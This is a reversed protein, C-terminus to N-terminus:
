WLSPEASGLLAHRVAAGDWGGKVADRLAVARSRREFLGARGRLVQSRGGGRRSRAMMEM